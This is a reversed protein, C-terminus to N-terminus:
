IKQIKEITKRNKQKNKEINKGRTTLIKENWKASGFKQKKPFMKWKKAVKESKKTKETKWGRKLFPKRM